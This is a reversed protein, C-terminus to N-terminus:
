LDGFAFVPREKILAHAIRRAGLLLLSPLGLVGTRMIRIAAMVNGAKNGDVM